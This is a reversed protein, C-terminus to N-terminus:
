SFTVSTITWVRTTNSFSDAITITASVTNGAFDVVSLTFIANTNGNSDSAIVGVSILFSGTVTSPSGNPLNVQIVDNTSAKTLTVLFPESGGTLSVNIIGSQSTFALYSLQLVPKTQVVTGLIGAVGVLDTALIPYFDNTSVILNRSVVLQKAVSQSACATYNLANAICYARIKTAMAQVLLVATTATTASGLIEVMKTLKATVLASAIGTFTINTTGGITFFNDAYFTSGGGVAMSIDNAGKHWFYTGAPTSQVYTGGGNYVQGTFVVTPSGVLLNSSSFTSVGSLDLVMDDLCFDGTTIIKVPYGNPTAGLSSDALLTVQNNNAQATIPLATLSSSVTAAINLATAYGTKDGTAWTIAAGLLSVGFTVGGDTSVLLQTIQGTNGMFVQFAFNSQSSATGQSQTSILLTGLSGAVSNQILSTVSFSVGPTSFVDVYYSTGNLVPASAQIGLSKFYSTNLFKYLQTAVSLNSTAGTLVQGNISAPIVVGNYYLFVDGNSFQAVAWANGGFSCSCLIATMTKTNDSPHQLRVYGVQAPLAPTAASGFTVLGASTAELGFATAAQAGFDVFARRKEVEAGQNIHVDTAAELAHLSSTLNSRRSDLGEKWTTLITEM